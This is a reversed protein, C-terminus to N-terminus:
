SSPSKISFVLFYWSLMLDCCGRGSFSLGKRKTLDAPLQLIYKIRIILM